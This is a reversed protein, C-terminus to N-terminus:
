ATNKPMQGAEVVVSAMAETIPNLSLRNDLFARDLTMLPQSQQDCSYVYSEVGTKPDVHKQLCQACIGKMMCQMPTLLSVNINDKPDGIIQTIKDLVPKVAIVHSHDYQSFDIDKVVSSITQNRNQYIVHRHLGSFYRSEFQDDTEAEFSSIFTVKCGQELLMQAYPFFAGQNVGHGILCIKKQSYVPLAQGHPGSLFISDGSRLSSLFVTSGGKIRIFFTFDGTSRDIDVPSLAIPDTYISNPKDRGLFPQVKYFYGPKHLDASKPCRVVLKFINHAKKEVSIVRAQFSDWDIPECHGKVTNLQEVIKKAGAKASAIAKVVSGAYDPHADGHFSYFNDKQPTKVFCSEPDHDFVTGTHPIVSPYDKSLVINPTTGAAIFVSQAPICALQDNMRCIVGMVDKSENVEFATPVASALISIGEELAKAVEHVNLRYSPADCLDKRYIIKAGGWSRLLGTIDPNDKQRECRLERAHNVWTQARSKDFESLGLDDLSLGTTELNNLFQEVQTQYYALSETATDIATLGGGIVIIPLHVDLGIVSKAKYAGTLQLSMLFDSAQRIGKALNNPIDIRNPAGAGVCLAVHDYHRKADRPTLNGGFRVGGKLTFTQFRELHIRVLTLFNKDWRSTIGYEAVGGFGDLTRRELDQYLESFKLIPHTLLQPDIPEIKSGDIGDVQYGQQLLFYSLAFGAPGQGVVLVSKSVEPQTMITEFRLPNWRMLLGYLEVGWDLALVCRLIQSEIGPIDVPDQTQFICAASCDNCIRHGTVAVMPNDIMVVSLAALTYGQQKLSVMESIKQDLPCGSLDRGVENQKIKNSEDKIGKRCSDKDRKHCVLCYSAESASKEKSLGADTLSFGSRQRTVSDKANPLLSKFDLTKPLEFLGSSAHYRQYFPHGKGLNLIASCYQTAMDLEGQYEVPSKLWKELSLALDVDTFEELTTANIYPKLKSRTQLLTQYSVNQLPHKVVRRQLFSRKIKHIVALKMDHQRNQALADQISFLEGLFDELYKAHDILAESPAVRDIKFNQYATFIAESKKKLYAEYAHQLKELGVSSFFDDFTIDFQLSLETM